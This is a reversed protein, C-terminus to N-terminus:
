LIVIKRIFTNDRKVSVALSVQEPYYANQLKELIGQVICIFFKM